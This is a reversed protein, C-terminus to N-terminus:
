SDDEGDCNSDVGDGPTETNGPFRTADNDDCDEYVDSGDGDADVVTVGYLAQVATEKGSDDGSTCGAAVLGLALVAATATRPAGTAGCHPCALGPRHFTGCTACPRLM